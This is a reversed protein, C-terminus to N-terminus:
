KVYVSDAATQGPTYTNTYIPPEAPMLGAVSLATQVTKFAAYVADFQSKIAGLETQVHDDRAVKQVGNMSDGAYVAPAQLAIEAGSKPPNQADTYVGGVVASDEPREDNYLVAVVDGAQPPMWTKVSSGGAPQLLIASLSADDEYGTLKVEARGSKINIIEGYLLIM